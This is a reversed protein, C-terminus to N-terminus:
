ASMASQSSQIGNPHQGHSMALTRGADQGNTTEGWKM